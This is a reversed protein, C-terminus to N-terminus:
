NDINKIDVITQKMRSTLKDMIETFNNGEEPYTVFANAIHYNALRVDANKIEDFKNIIKNHIKTVSNLDCFPFVGIFSQTGFQVFVDTVWFLESLNKHLDGSLRRYENEQKLTIQDAPTFFTSMLVSFNYKGKNAKSVEINVYEDLSKSILRPTEVSASVEVLMFMRVREKLFDDEFPKLIFDAAGAMISKLFIEKKNNSTLVIIPIQPNSRKVKKLISFGEEIDMDIDIIILKIDSGLESIKNLFKIPDHTEHSSGKVEDIIRSIRSSMHTNQVLLVVKSIDDM